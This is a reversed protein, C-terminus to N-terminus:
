AAGGRKVALFAGIAMFTIGIFRQMTITNKIAGMLGFHDILAMSALQGLLVFSIANGVGFRPAIWTISLIYFVVLAGGFYNYSPIQSRFPNSLGSTAVVYVTTIGTGVLLLVLTALAPNQLRAGLGSNLTAMIPIGIGAVLMVAAYGIFGGQESM